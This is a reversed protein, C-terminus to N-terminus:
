DFTVNKIITGVNQPHLLDFLIRDDEQDFIIGYDTDLYKCLEVVLTEYFFIDTQKKKPFWFTIKGLYLPLKRQPKTVLPEKGSWSLGWYRNKIEATYFRNKKLILCGAPFSLWSQYEYVNDSKFTHKLPDYTGCRDPKLAGEKYNIFFDIIKKSIPNFINGKVSEYFRMYDDKTFDWNQMFDLFQHDTLNEKIKIQLCINKYDFNGM